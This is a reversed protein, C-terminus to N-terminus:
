FTLNLFGIVYARDKQINAELMQKDELSEGIVNEFHSICLDESDPEITGLIKAKEILKDYIWNFLDSNGIEKNLPEFVLEQAVAACLDKTIHIDPYPFNNHFETDIAAAIDDTLELSRRRNYTSVIAKLKM